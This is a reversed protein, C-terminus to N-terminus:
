PRQPEIYISEYARFDTDILLKPDSGEGYQQKSIREFGVESLIFALAEFDYIFRQGCEVFISNIAM